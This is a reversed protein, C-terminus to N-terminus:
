KKELSLINRKINYISKLYKASNKPDLKLQAAQTKLQSSEDDLCLRRICDDVFEKFTDENLGILVPHHEIHLFFEPEVLEMIEAMLSQFATEKKSFMTEFLKRVEIRSLTKLNLKGEIYNIYSLKELCLVLLYLESKPLNKLNIKVKFAAEKELNPKVASPSPPHLKIKPTKHLLMQAATQESPLCIDLLQRKYYEKMVPNQVQIWLPAMKRILDMKEMGSKLQQSFLTLFFDQNQKLINQLFDKGKKQLCDDPDMGSLDASRVTFGANLLVPLSRLAATQGAGDGDFFLVVKDTYSRLRKAHRPTLATGLVAITNQFGNQFLSLADTYGEVILAYGKKRIFSSAERLAYFTQHKQFTPSDKSNIYKPLSSDLCRGGFGLVQNMPSFIPFILRKWFFDVQRGNKERLLGALLADKQQETNLFSALSSHGSYGIQFKEIIEQTYGRKKLYKKVNHQPSQQILQKHFFEAAEKNIRFIRHIDISDKKEKPSLQQLSIGAQEALYQVAQPFSMGKQDKLYTFINGSKKCAFCHYVQKVQSVSFSPTKDDHDPFPCLGTHRGSASPKLVTDRGILDVIDQSQRVRNITDQTWKM